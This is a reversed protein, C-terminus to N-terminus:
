AARGAEAFLLDRYCRTLQALDAIACCEDAQHMGGTRGFAGPHAARTLGGAEPLGLEIIEAGPFHDHIFRGDTTGGKADLAPVPGCHRAVIASALAALAGPASFYPMSATDSNAIVRLKSLLPADPHGNAWRPLKELLSKVKGSLTATSEHHTFRINWLASAEGPIIATAGFDGSRTAVTEFNTAPMEPSADDWRHAHLVALALALARNPNEFLHQYAAHGQVGTATITGCLSGRRGVKIAEGFIEESSPEGVIFGSPRKGAAAMWELVRRSGNAAAWEEDTTILLSTGVAGGEARRRAAFDAAAAAFAAVAGKMDTAGRGLLFGDQIEGSFPGSRWLSDDGPPVVDTHGLFCLGSGASAGPWDIYLNDVPYGWKAHGGQFSLWECRAGAPELFDALLRLTRAAAPRLDPTVPTLSPVRVLRRALEIAHDEQPM